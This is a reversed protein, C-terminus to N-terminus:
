AKKVETETLRQQRKRLSDGNLELRYANHVLRDLIADALTPDGILEHWRDIPYQSTILTSRREYRDELLELLDRRQEDTLAALGFDDLVILDTRALQALQKRYRGDGRAIGLEGLLRPLRAYRVSYGDRCAQHALACALYSKGVGTPGTILCNLHERLWTGASPHFLPRM